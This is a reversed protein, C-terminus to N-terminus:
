SPNEEVMVDGVVWTTSLQDHWNANFIFSLNDFPIFRCLTRVLIKFFGPDEGHQDIVRCSSFLKGPTALFLLEMLFYYMFIMLLVVGALLLPSSNTQWREALFFIHKAMLLTFIITDLIHNIFRKGTSSPIISITKIGNTEYVEHEMKRTQKFHLLVLWALFMFLVNFVIYKALIGLIEPHQHLDPPSNLLSWILLITAFLKELFVMGMFGRVIAVHSKQIFNSLLGCLLIFFLIGDVFLTLYHGDNM